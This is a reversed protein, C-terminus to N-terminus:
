KKNQPFIRRFGGFVQGAAKSTTGGIQSALQSSSQVNLLGNVMDPITPAALFLVYIILARTVSTGVEGVQDPSYGLLPPTFRFQGAEKLAENGFNESQGIIIMLLFLAYVAIFTLSAAALPKLANIISSKTKSPIAAIFFMWPLYIPSLALTVYNKLLALFLRFAAMFAALGLVLDLLRNGAEQVLGGGAAEEGLPLVRGIYRLLGTQEIDIGTPILNNMCEGEEPCDFIKANSTGWIAWISVYPDDPQLYNIDKEDQGELGLHTSTMFERGPAGPATLLSNQVVGTGIYILDVFFGAIPYSLTVLVLSLILSPISNILTVSAQGGLSQRFLILFSLIIVIVVYFILVLNRSWEWLGMVPQLLTYGLGPFYFANASPDDAQAYVALLERNQLRQYQDYAWVVSSNPPNLYFTDMLRGTSALASSSNPGPQFLHIEQATDPNCPSSGIVCNATEILAPGFGLDQAITKIQANFLFFSTFFGFLVIFFIKSSNRRLFSTIKSM